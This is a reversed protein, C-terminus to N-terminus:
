VGNPEGKTLHSLDLTFGLERKFKPVIQRPTSQRTWLIANPQTPGRLAGDLAGQWDSGLGARTGDPGSVRAFYNDGAGSKLELLSFGDPLILEIKM